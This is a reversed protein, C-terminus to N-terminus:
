MHANPRRRKYFWAGLRKKMRTFRSDSKHVIFRWPTHGAM